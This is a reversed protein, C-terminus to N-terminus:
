VTGCASVLPLKDICGPSNSLTDSTDCEACALVLVSSSIDRENLQKPFEYECICVEDGLGLCLNGDLLFGVIRIKTM